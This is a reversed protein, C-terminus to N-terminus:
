ASRRRRLAVLGILGFLVSPVAGGGCGCDGGKPSGTDAPGSDVSTDDLDSDSDSDGDSDTDTDSDSDSDADSEVCAKFGSGAWGPNDDEGREYAGVDSGIRPLCNFDKDVTYAADAAGILGSGASPYANRGPVDVLDSLDIDFSSGSAQNSGAVGNNAFVASGQGGGLYIATSGECFFANNAVVVGDVGALDNVRLCGTGGGIVTNHLVVLDDPDSGQSSKAYIGYVGADIVVNNRVIVEGVTQIGNDVTNWVINGEVVNPEQGGSGYLIIGPYNTDHIVNHRITVGYSGSKLEIGDGQQTDQTDHCWNFEILGGAIRCDDNNCGLYMCEGTGSTHHIHNGRITLDEYTTGSINASLGVDGTQSIELDEIVAHSSAHLRLGHSGYLLEFGKFTYYSGSLNIINQSGNPDGEILVAEGEGTRVVIPDDQTGELVVERYWSGGSNKQTSWTGEHVILEDGPQLAGIAEWLDEGESVEYTAGLALSLFLM